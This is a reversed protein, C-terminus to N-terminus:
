LIPHGDSCSTKLKKKNNKKWLHQKSNSCLIYAWYQNPTCDGRKFAISIDMIVYILFCCGILFLGNSVLWLICSVKLNESELQLRQSAATLEAVKKEAQELQTELEQELEHSSMQFEELEEKTEEFRFFFSLWFNVHIEM